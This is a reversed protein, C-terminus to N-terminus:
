WVRNSCCLRLCIARLEEQYVLHGLTHKVNFKRTTQLNKSFFMKSNLYSVLTLRSCDRSLSWGSVGSSLATKQVSYTSRLLPAAASCSPDLFRDLNWRFRMSTYIMKNAAKTLEINATVKAIRQAHKLHGLFYFIYAWWCDCDFCRRDVFIECPIWHQIM